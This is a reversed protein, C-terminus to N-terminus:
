SGLIPGSASPPWSVVENGAEDYRLWTCPSHEGSFRVHIREDIDFGEIDRYFARWPPLTKTSVLRLLRLFVDQDVLHLKEILGVSKAKAAAEVASRTYHTATTVYIGRRHGYLLTAGLFERIASVTEGSRQNIRRKVQVVYPKDSDLLLLDIGGDGTRGVHVVECDMYDSLISGVLEEMKTPNLEALLKSNGTIERRLAQVPVDIEDIQYSRLAAPVREWEYFGDRNFGVAYQCWWGCKDCELIAAPQGWSTEIVGDIELLSSSCDRCTRSVGDLPDIEVPDSAGLLPRYERIDSLYSYDLITSDSEM